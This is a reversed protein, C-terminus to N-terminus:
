ARRPTATPPLTQDSSNACRALALLRRCWWWFAVQPREPQEEPPDRMIIMLLFERDIFGCDIQHTVTKLFHYPLQVLEPEFLSQHRHNSCLVSRFARLVGFRGSSALSM